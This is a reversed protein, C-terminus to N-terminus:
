RKRARRLFLKGTQATDGGALCVSAALIACTIVQVESEKKWLASVKSSHTICFSGYL